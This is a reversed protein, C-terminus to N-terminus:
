TPGNSEGFAGAPLQWEGHELIIKSNRNEDRAEAVLAASQCPAYAQGISAKTLVSMNRDITKGFEQKYEAIKKVQEPLVVQASAWQNANGFICTACSLRGWSLRYAPHPNM